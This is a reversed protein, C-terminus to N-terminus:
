TAETQPPPHTKRRTRRPTTLEADQLKRGLEDDRAIIDLDKELGLCFLVNAYNGFSVSPDGREIARLTPRTIGARESVQAATLRRRLRALRLNEGIAVMRRQLSPLSSVM